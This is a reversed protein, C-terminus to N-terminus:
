IEQKAESKDLICIQRMLRGNVKVDRVDLAVVQGVIEKDGFIEALQTLRTKNLVLSRGLEAFRLVLKEEKSDEQGIEEAGCAKITVKFPGKDGIMDITDSLNLPSNYQKLLEQATAM